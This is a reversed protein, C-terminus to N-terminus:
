FRSASATRVLVWLRIASIHFSDPKKIQVNETKLNFKRYIQIPTNEHHFVCNPNCLVKFASRFCFFFHTSYGQCLYEKEPFVSCHFVKFVYVPYFCTRFQVKVSDFYIQCTAHTRIIIFLIHDVAKANFTM